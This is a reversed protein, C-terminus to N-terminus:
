IQWGYYKQNTNCNTLCPAVEKKVQKYNPFCDINRLIYQEMNEMWCTIHQMSRDEFTLLDDKTAAKLSGDNYAKGFGANTDRLWRYILSTKMVAYGIINCLYRNWIFDYKPNRFKPARKFYFGNADDNPVQTGDTNQIVEYILEDDCFVFMGSEYVTGYVFPTVPVDEGYRIKDQMLDCYFDYGFCNNFLKEEENPIFQCRSRVQSHEDSGSCCILEGVSMLTDGAKMQYTPKSM